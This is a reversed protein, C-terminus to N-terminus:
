EGHEGEWWGLDGGHALYEFVRAINVAQRTEEPRQWGQGWNQISQGVVLAQQAGTGDDVKM